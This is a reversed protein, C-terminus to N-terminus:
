RKLGSSSSSSCSIPLLSSPSFLASVVLFDLDLFFFFFLLDFGLASTECVSVSIGILISASEDWSMGSEKTSALDLLFVLDLFNDTGGGVFSSFSSSCLSSDESDGVLSSSCCDASGGFSDLRCLFFRFLCFLPCFCGEVTSEDM